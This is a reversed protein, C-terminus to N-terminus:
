HIFIMILFGILFYLLPFVSIILLTASFFLGLLAVHPRSDKYKYIGGICCFMAILSFPASILGPLGILGYYSYGYGLLILLILAITNFVLGIIGYLPPHYRLNERSKKSAAVIEYLASVTIIIVAFAILIEFSYVLYAILLGALLGVVALVKAIETRSSNIWSMAPGFKSKEVAQEEPNDHQVQPGPWKPRKKLIYYTVGNSVITDLIGRTKMKNLLERFEEKSYDINEFNNIIKDINFYLDMITLGSELRERLLWEIKKELEKELESKDREPINVMESM